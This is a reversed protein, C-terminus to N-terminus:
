DSEKGERWREGNKGSRKEVPFQNTYNVKYQFLSYGKEKKVNYLSYENLIRNGKLGTLEYRREVEFIASADTVMYSELKKKRQEISDMDNRVNVYEYIFGSLFIFTDLRKVQHNQYNKTLNAKKTKIYKEFLLKKFRVKNCKVSM